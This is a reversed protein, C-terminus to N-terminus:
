ALVHFAFPNFVKRKDSSVVSYKNGDFRISGIERLDELVEKISEHEDIILEKKLEYFNETIQKESFENLEYVLNVFIEKNTEFRKCM